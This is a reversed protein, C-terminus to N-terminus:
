EYSEEFQYVKYWAELSIKIDVALRGGHISEDTLAM